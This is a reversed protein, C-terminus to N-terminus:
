VLIMKVPRVLALAAQSTDAPDPNVGSVDNLKLHLYIKYWSIDNLRLAYSLKTTFIFRDFTSMVVLLIFFVHQFICKAIELTEQWDWVIAMKLDM